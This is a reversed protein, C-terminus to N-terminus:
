DGEKAAENVETYADIAANLTDRTDACMEVASPAPVDCVAHFLASQVQLVKGAVPLLNDRVAGATACGSLLVCLTLILRM